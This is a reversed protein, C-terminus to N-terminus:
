QKGSNLRVLVLALVMMVIMTGYKWLNAQGNFSSQFDVLQM